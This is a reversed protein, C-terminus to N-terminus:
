PSATSRGGRPRNELSDSRSHPMSRYSTQRSSIDMKDERKMKVSREYSGDERKKLANQDVLRKVGRSLTRDSIPRSESIITRIETFRLFELVVGDAAKSFFAAKVANEVESMSWKAM